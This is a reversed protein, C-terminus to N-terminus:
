RKARVKVLWPIRIFAWTRRQAQRPMPLRVTGSCKTDIAELARAIRKRALTQTSRRLKNPDPVYPGILPGTNIEYVITRGAVVAHDARGWEIQALKFVPHLAKAFRNATVAQHEEAIAEDTLKEWVGRKVFWNDDVAIHDVSLSSGIKFTGWKAWLGEAYPEGCYEVILVGRLPLGRARLRRLRAELELPSNLLGSVPNTHTDELRLFVPFRSHRQQEDARVANFPNIGAANLSQLLEVRSMARAPNNLCRLGQGRLLRYFKSASRLERSSLREFDTFVYTAKPIRRKLLLTDYDQQVLRPTPFGFNGDVLSKVSIRNRPTTIVVIM